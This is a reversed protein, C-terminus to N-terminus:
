IVFDLITSNTLEELVQRPKVETNRHINLLALGNLLYRGTTKRVYTKIWRLTSFSRESTGTRIPLNGFVKPLLCINPYFNKDCQGLADIATKPPTGVATEHSYCQHWTKLKGEYIVNNCQLRDKDCYRALKLFSEIQSKVLNRGSPLLSSISDTIHQHKIFRDNLLSTVHDNFPIFIPRCIKRLTHQCM